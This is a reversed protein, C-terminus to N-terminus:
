KAENLNALKYLGLIVGTVTIYEGGSLDGTFLAVSSVCLAAVALGFKRSLYKENM